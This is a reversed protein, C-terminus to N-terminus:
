LRKSSPITSMASSGSPTGLASDSTMVVECISAARGAGLDDESITEGDGTKTSRMSSDGILGSFDLGDAAAGCTSGARFSAGTAACSQRAKVVGATLLSPFDAGASPLILSVGLGKFCLPWSAMAPQLGHSCCGQLEKRKSACCAALAAMAMAEEPLLCGHVHACCVNGHGDFL